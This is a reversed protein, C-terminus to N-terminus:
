LLCAEPVSPAPASARKAETSGPIPLSAFEAAMVAVTKSPDCVMEYIPDSASGFAKFLKNSFVYKVQRESAIMPDDIDVVEAVLARFEAFYDGVTSGPRPDLAHFRRVWNCNWNPDAANLFVRRAESDSATERLM